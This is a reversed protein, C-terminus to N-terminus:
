DQVNKKNGFRYCICFLCVDLRKSRVKTSKMPLREVVSRFVTFKYISKKNAKLGFWKSLILHAIHSIHSFHSCSDCRHRAASLLRSLRLSNLFRIVIIHAITGHCVFIDGSPIKKRRRRKIIVNDFPQPKWMKCVVLLNRRQGRKRGEEREETSTKCTPLRAM